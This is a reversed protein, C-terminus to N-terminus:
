ADRQPPRDYLAAVEDRCTRLVVDRRLKLSPTLHGEAETWDGPLVTFRRISEAQSVTANAADVAEQVEARLAPDDVAGRPDPRRGRERAWAAYADRDLTVLAAVFPRGDGVVLCQSVLPHARVRRELAEPAVNKGGTTVLIERKRGTIRVFGEDDVEGVDGSHLWGDPELVARTAEDDGWYGSFVQPGRFLLEGDDAVRVATGPLPRGVTGVRTAEPTNVTVAATTETLGYGELVVVGAGRYFHALREGLPAGGTVVHTCRGGLLERVRPFARRELAAHRARLAVGPRGAERARSWAIATEAARGFARGHGDAVAQQSATNFLRELVRPVALLFTPRVAALDRRLTRADAAHALRVGRRVAAVQVLRAFVHPLPLIIVTTADDAEFLPALEGTAAELEADLNGHTLACGKPAGTTGSTYVLTALDGPGAAARREELDADAVDGGLRALVDLAGDDLSWVHVLEPLSARVEAVRATLAPGGTVVARAGSDRLVHAVGDPSTSDYVPVSVAGAFWVAYDVVTWEWRTAALLAVRDGPGVGSAVLGKAVAVVQAHLEAASVDRWAGGAGAGDPGDGAERVALAAADPRERAARVVDDTLNGGRRAEARPPTSYERM